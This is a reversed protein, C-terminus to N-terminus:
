PQAGGGGGFGGGGGGGGGYGGGRSSADSYRSDHGYSMFLTLLTPHLNRYLRVGGSSALQDCSELQPDRDITPRVRLVPKNM